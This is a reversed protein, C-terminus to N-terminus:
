KTDLIINEHENFSQILARWNHQSIFEHHNDYQLCVNWDIEFVHKKSIWGHFWEFSCISM